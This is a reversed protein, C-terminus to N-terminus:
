LKLALINPVHPPGAVVWVEKGDHLLRPHVDNSPQLWLLRHQGVRVETCELVELDLAYQNVLHDLIRLTWPLLNQQVELRLTQPVRPVDEGFDGVELIGEIVHLCVRVRAEPPQQGLCRQVLQIETHGFLCEHAELVVLPDLEDLPEPEQVVAHLLLGLDGGVELAEVLRLREVPLDVSLVKCDVQANAQAVPKADDLKRVTAVLVEQLLSPARNAVVVRIAALPAIGCLVVGSGLIVAGENVGVVEQLVVLGQFAEDILQGLPAWQEHIHAVLKGGDPEALLRHLGEQPVAVHLGRHVRAHHEVLPIKGHVQRLLLIELLDLTQQGLVGLMQEVLVLLDLCHLQVALGVPVGFRGLQEGLDRSLHRTTRLLVGVPDLLQVKQSRKFHLLVLCLGEIHLHGACRHAGHGRRLCHLREDGLVLAHRAVPRQLARPASAFGEVEVEDGLPLQVLALELLCHLGGEAEGIVLVDQVCLGDVRNNSQGGVVVFVEHLAGLGEDLQLCGGIDMLVHPGLKAVKREPDEGPVRRAVGGRRHQRARLALRPHVVPADLAGLAAVPQGEADGGPPGDERFVAGGWVRDVVARGSDHAGVVRDDFAPHAAVPHVGRLHPLQPVAGEAVRAQVRRIVVLVVVVSAVTAWRLPLVSDGESARLLPESIGSGAVM